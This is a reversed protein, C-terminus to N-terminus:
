ALLLAAPLPRSARRARMEREQAASFKISEGARSPRRLSRGDRACTLGLRGGGLQTAATEPKAAGGAGAFPGLVHARARNAAVKARRRRRRM